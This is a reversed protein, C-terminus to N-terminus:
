DCGQSTVGALNFHLITTLRFPSVPATIRHGAGTLEIVLEGIFTVSASM